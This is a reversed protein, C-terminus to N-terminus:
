LQVCSRRKSAAYTWIKEGLGDIFSTECVPSKSTPWYEFWRSITDSDAVRRKQPFKCTMRRFSRRRSSLAAVQLNTSRQLRYALSRMKRPCNRTPVEGRGTM